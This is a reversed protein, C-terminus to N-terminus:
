RHWGRDESAFLSTLPKVNATDCTFGLCGLNWNDEITALTSYHNAPVFSDRTGHSSSPIVLALVHGGGQGAPSDCCGTDDGFGQFGAGTYDAEDWTIFIASNDRWAKSSM